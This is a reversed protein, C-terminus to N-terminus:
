WNVEDCEKVENSLETGLVEFKTKSELPKESEKSAGVIGMNTAILM